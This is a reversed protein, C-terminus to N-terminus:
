RGKTNVNNGAIEKQSSDYNPIQKRLQHSHSNSNWGVEFVTIFTFVSAAVRKEKPPWGTYLESIKKRKRKTKLMKETGINRM